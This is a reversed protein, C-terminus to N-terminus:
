PVPEATLIINDTYHGTGRDFVGGCTILTLRAPGEATFYRALDVADKAVQERSTVAFRVTGGDADDVLVEAGVPVSRLDFFAGRQGAFDLVASGGAGPAPGLRYWGVTAADPVEMQGDAQLGVPVVAADLGIGAVRVRAPSDAVGVPPASTTSTTPATAPAPATAVTTSAPTSSTTTAVPAVAELDASGTSDGSAFWAVAAVVLLAASLGLLIRSRTSSM